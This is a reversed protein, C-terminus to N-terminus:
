RSQPDGNVADDVADAVDEAADRIGSGAQEAANQLDDGVEHARDKGDNEGAANSDDATGGTQGSTNGTREKSPSGTGDNQGATGDTRDDGAQPTAVADERRATDEDTPKPEDAEDGIMGNSDQVSGPEPTVTVAPATTPAPTTSTGPRATMSGCATLLSMVLAIGALGPYKHDM